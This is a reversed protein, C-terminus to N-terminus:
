GVARTCVATIGITACDNDVLIWEHDSTFKLM